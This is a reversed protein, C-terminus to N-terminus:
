ERVTSEVKDNTYKYYNVPITQTIFRATEIVCIKIAKEMPTNTYGSLIGGLYWSGFKGMNNMNTDTAQGQISTAALVTSTSADIIRVDLAIHAKSSSVGLLGGFYGSGASGGGGVGASGGSAQPEFGTFAAAIILDGKQEQLSFRGSSMLVSILERRLCGGVENTIKLAKVDFDTISIQAKPGSYEPLVPQEERKVGIKVVREKKNHLITKCGSLVVAATFFILILFLKGIRMKLIKCYLCGVTLM